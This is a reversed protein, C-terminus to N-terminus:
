WDSMPASMQSSPKENMSIAAIAAATMRTARPPKVRMDRGLLETPPGGGVATAEGLGEGAHQQQGLAAVSELDDVRVVGGAGAASGVM